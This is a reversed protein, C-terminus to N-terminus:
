KYIKTKFIAVANGKNVKKKVVKTRRKSKKGMLRAIPLPKTTNNKCPINLSPPPYPYPPGNYAIDPAYLRAAKKIMKESKRSIPQQYLAVLGVNPLLGVTPARPHDKVDRSLLELINGFPPSYYSMEARIPAQFVKAGFGSSIGYPSPMEIVEPAREKALRIPINSKIGSRIAKEFIEACDDPLHLPHWFLPNCENINRYREEFDFNDMYTVGTISAHSTSLLPAVIYLLM